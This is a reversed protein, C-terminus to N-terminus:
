ARAPPSRHTGARRGTGGEFLFRGTSAVDTNGVFIQSGTDNGTAFLGCSTTDISLNPANSVDLSGSVGLIRAGFQDANDIVINLGSKGGSWGTVFGVGNVTVKSPGQFLVM